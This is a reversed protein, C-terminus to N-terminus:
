PVSLKSESTFDQQEYRFSCLVRYTGPSLSGPYEAVYELREGPLLRQAPFKAKGVLAGKENLFAAVGEPVFPESGQNKLWISASTNSAGTAPNVQVPEAELKMPAGLQFTILAGLSASIGVTNESQGIANVGHFIAAVARVDTEPPITIRVDVQHLSNAKVIGTNESFVASAAVSHLTEGMPVFVRKGDKVIVDNAIMEFQFDAPTQNSLTLALSLSQGFTGRAEIVAPSLSLTPKSQRYPVQGAAVFSFALALISSSAASREIM